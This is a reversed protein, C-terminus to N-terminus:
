ISSYIRCIVLLQMQLICMASVSLTKISFSSKVQCCLAFERAFYSAFGPLDEEPVIARNFDDADASSDQLNKPNQIFVGVSYGMRQYKQFYHKSISDGVQYYDAAASGVLLHYFHAEPYVALLSELSKYNIFSFANSSEHWDLLIRGHFKFHNGHKKCPIDLPQVRHRPLDDGIGYLHVLTYFSVAVVCILAALVSLTRNM